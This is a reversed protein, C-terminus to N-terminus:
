RSRLLRQATPGSSLMQGLSTILGAANGTMPAQSISFLDPTLSPENPHSLRALTGVYVLVRVGRELLEAVYSKAPRVIDLNRDFAFGVDDSCSSFNGISESVGLM